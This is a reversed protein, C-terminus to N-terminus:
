TARRSNRGVSKRLTARVGVLWSRLWGPIRDKQEKHMGLKLALRGRMTLPVYYRPVDMRVFGNRRKFETLSSDAKNGYDYHEYLLYPIKRTSCERVAAAMLANSPRKDYHGVMSIIQMIAATDDDWVVKCYGIFQEGFYAALFTSRDAYTGNEDRVSDYDKGYHWFRRGQRVPTDNYVAMIGRVYSEDYQSPRVTVGRKESALISRRTSESISKRFWDDYSGIVIVAFNVWEVPYDFQQKTEPVRQTFTYIDPRHTSMRLAGIVATPGPLSRKRLWYADFIEAIKVLRGKIALTTGAVELMPVAMKRGRRTVEISNRM